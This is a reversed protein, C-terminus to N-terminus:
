QNRVPRRQHPLLQSGPDVRCRRAAVGDGAGSALRPDGVGGGVRMRLEGLRTRPIGWRVTHDKAQTLLIVDQRPV